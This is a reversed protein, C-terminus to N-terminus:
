TTFFNANAKQIIHPWTSLPGWPHFVMKPTGAGAMSGLLHLWM